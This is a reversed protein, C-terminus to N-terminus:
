GGQMASHARKPGKEDVIKAGRRYYGDRKGTHTMKLAKKPKQNKSKEVLFKLRTAVKSRSVLNENILEIQSKKRTLIPNPRRGVLESQHRNSYPNASIERKFNPKIMIASPQIQRSKSKKHRREDNQSKRPGKAAKKVQKKPKSVRARGTAGKVPKNKKYKNIQSRQYQTTINGNTQMKGAKGSGVQGSKGLIQNNYGMKRVEKKAEKKPAKAVKRKALRNRIKLHGAPDAPYPQSWIGMQHTQFSRRTQNSQMSVGMPSIVHSVPATESIKAGALRNAPTFKSTQYYNMSTHSLKSVNGSAQMTKRGYPAFNYNRSSKWTQTRNPKVLVSRSKPIMARHSQVKIKRGVKVRRVDTRNTM